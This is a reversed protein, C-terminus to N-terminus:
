EHSANARQNEGHDMPRPLRKQLQYAAFGSLLVLGPLVLVHEGYFFGTGRWYFVLTDLIMIGIFLILSSLFVVVCVMYLNEHWRGVQRQKQELMKLTERLDDLTTHPLPQGHTPRWLMIQQQHYAYAAAPNHAYWAHYDAKNHRQIVPCATHIVAQDPFRTILSLSDPANLRALTTHEENLYYWHQNSLTAVPMQVTEATYFTFNADQLLKELPALTPIQITQTDNQQVTPMKGQRAAWWMKGVYWIPKVLQWWIRASFWLIGTGILMAGIRAIETFFERM